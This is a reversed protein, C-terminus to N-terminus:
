RTAASSRPLPTACRRRSCSPSRGVGAAALCTATPSDAAPRWRKSVTSCARRSSGPGDHPRGGGRLRRPPVGGGDRDPRQRGTRAPDGGAPSPRTAIFPAAIDENPDFGARFALLPADEAILDFEEDACTEDDRRRQMVYSTAAWLRELEARTSSYVTAGNREVRIRQDSRVTAVCDFRLGVGDAVRARRPSMNRRWAQVVVGVEEAFLEALPDGRLWQLTWGAVAPSPWRPLRRWCAATRATTAAPSGATAARM